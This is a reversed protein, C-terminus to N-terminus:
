RLLECLEFALPEAVTRPAQEALRAVLPDPDPWAPQVVRM